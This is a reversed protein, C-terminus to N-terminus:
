GTPLTEEPAGYGMGGILFDHTPKGIPSLGAAIKTWSEGKDASMFVDGETTGAFIEYGGPFACMSMAEVNARSEPFGGAPARWNQGGDESIMVTGKATRQEVWFNPTAFGGSVFMRQADGPAYLLQDPYGIRFTGDTLQTWNEGGNLSRYIGLGTTIIVEDPNGPRLTIQHIDKYVFHDYDVFEDLDRWSQGGDVTKLLAGQEVGAYIIDPDRPDVALTKLHPDFDPAPFQWKEHMPATRIASLDAWSAGGDESRYLGVPETGLFLATKGNRMFGRLSYTTRESVGPSADQWSAGGDGSRVLTGPIRAAFLNGTGADFVLAGVHDGELSKGSVSWGSDEHRELTVVGDTTAVFLTRAPADLVFDNTANTSLCATSM